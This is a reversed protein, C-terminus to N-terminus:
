AAKKPQPEQNHKAKRRAAGILVILGSGLLWAAPPAPVSSVYANAYDFGSTTSLASFDNIIVGNDDRLETIGGWAVTHELSALGTMDLSDIVGPNYHNEASSSADVSAYIRLDLPSGFIVPMTFLFTGPTANGLSQIDLGDANLVSLRQWGEWEVGSHSTDKLLIGARWESDARGVINPDLSFMNNASYQLSGSISFAFTLYGGTGAAVGASSLTFQDSFDGSAWASGNALAQGQSMESESYASLHIGGGTDVSAWADAAVSASPTAAKGSYVAEVHATIPLNSNHTESDDIYADVGTGGLPSHAQGIIRASSEYTTAIASGNAILLSAGLTVAVFLTQTLKM